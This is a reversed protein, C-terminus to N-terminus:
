SIRPLWAQLAGDQWVAGQRSDGRVDRTHTRGDARADGMGELPRSGACRQSGGSGAGVATIKGNEVLIVQDKSVTGKAPDILNGARIAITQATAPLAFFFFALILKKM